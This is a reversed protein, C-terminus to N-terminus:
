SNNTLVLVPSRTSPPTTPPDRHLPCPSCGTGPRTLSPSSPSTSTWGVPPPTTCNHALHTAWARAFDSSAISLRGVLEAPARDEPYRGAILRLSAVARRAEGAWDRYLERTHPDCFLM